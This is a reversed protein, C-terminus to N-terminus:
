STAPTRRAKTCLGATSSNCPVSGLALRGSLTRAPQSGPTTREHQGTMGDVGPAAERQLAVLPKGFHAVTTIHHRLVTLQDQRQRQRQVAQRLRELVAPMGHGQSQTKPRALQLAKGEAQHGERGRRREERYRITRLSRQNEGGM